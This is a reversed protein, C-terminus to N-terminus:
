FRPIKRVRTDGRWVSEDYPFPSVLVCQTCKPRANLLSQIGSVTDEFGVIKLQTPDKQLERGALQIALNWGNPHPKRHAYTERTFWHSPPISELVPLHLFQRILSVERQSSSTVIFVRQPELCLLFRQVGDLLHVLRCGERDKNRLFISYLEYKRKRIRHIQSETVFPQPQTPQRGEHCLLSWEQFTLPPPSSEEHAFEEEYAQTWALWLIEQTNVILGDWDFLYVDYKNIFEDM